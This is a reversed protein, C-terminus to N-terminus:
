LVEVDDARRPSDAESEVGKGAGSAATSGATAAAGSGAEEVTDVSCLVSDNMGEM